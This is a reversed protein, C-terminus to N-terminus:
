IWTEQYLRQSLPLMCSAKRGCRVMTQYTRSLWQSRVPHHHGGTIFASPARHRFWGNDIFFFFVLVLSGRTHSQHLSISATHISVISSEQSRRDCFLRPCYNNYLFSIPLPLDRQKPAEHQRRRWFFFSCEVWIVAPLDYWKIAFIYIILLSALSRNIYARPFSVFNMVPM